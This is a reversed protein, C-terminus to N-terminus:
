QFNQFYRGKKQFISEVYNIVIYFYLFNVVLIFVIFRKFQFIKGALELNNKKPDMEFSPRVLM